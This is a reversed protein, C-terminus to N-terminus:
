VTVLNRFKAFRAATIGPLKGVADVSAIPRAAIIRGATAKGIGPLKVLEDETAANLNVGAGTNPTVTPPQCPTAATWQATVTPLEPTASAQGYAYGGTGVATALVITVLASKFM